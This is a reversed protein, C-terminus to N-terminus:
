PYLTQPLASKEVLVGTSRIVCRRPSRAPVRDPGREGPSAELLCVGSSLWLPGRCRDPVGLERRQEENYSQGGGM